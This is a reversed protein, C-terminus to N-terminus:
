QPNVQAMIVQRPAGTPAASDDILDGRWISDWRVWLGSLLATLHELTTKLIYGRSGHCTPTPSVTFLPWSTFTTKHAAGRRNIKSKTKPIPFSDRSVSLDPIFQPPHPSSSTRCTGRKQVWVELLVCFGFGQDERERGRERASCERELYTLQYVFLWKSKFRFTNGQLLPYM